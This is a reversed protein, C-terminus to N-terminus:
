GRVATRPGPPTRTATPRGSRTSASSTPTSGSSRRRLRPRDPELLTGIDWQAVSLRAGMGAVISTASSPRRVARSAQWEISSRLLSPAAQANCPRERVGITRRSRIPRRPIIPRQEPVTPTPKTPVFHPHADEIVPPAAVSWGCRDIEQEGSEPEIAIGPTPPRESPSPHPGRRPPTGLGAAGRSRCTAAVCRRALKPHCCRPRSCTRSRQRRSPRTTPWCSGTSTTPTPSTRTARPSPGCRIPGM